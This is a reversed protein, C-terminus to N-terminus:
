SLIETGATGAIGEVLLHPLTIVARRGGGEVFRVAAEIKPKMSGPAFHGEALYRRAEACTMRALEKQGPKRFDLAVRPVGTLIALTTAGLLLGALASARDKDIVAEVGQLTGDPKRTVPIGGGGVAVVIVGADLLTRIAEKEVVDTPEPSPVVRRWGRGADERMTWGRREMLERAAGESYFKGVPKTPTGFAPDAPDVVVQTIVTVVPRRRPSSGFAAGLQQQIMFGMAGQTDAVCVDLPLTYLGLSEWAIESRLLVNGVQPGNGHTILIRGPRTEALRAVERMTELTHAYQQPITGEEGERTISNGGLAIVTLDNM